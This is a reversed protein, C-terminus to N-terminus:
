PPSATRSGRTTVRLNLVGHVGGRREVDNRNLLTGVGLAHDDAFRKRQQSMIGAVRHNVGRIQRCAHVDITEVVGTESADGHRAERYLICVEFADHGRVRRVNRDGVVLYDVIVAAQVDVGVGTGAGRIPLGRFSEVAALADMEAPDIM